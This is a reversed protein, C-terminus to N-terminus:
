GSLLFFAGVLAVVVGSIGLFNHARSKWLLEARAVLYKFPTASSQTFGGVAMWVGIAIMVIWWVMYGVTACVKIRSVMLSPPKLIPTKLAFPADCSMTM